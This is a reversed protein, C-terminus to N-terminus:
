AAPPWDTLPPLPRRKRFAWAPNRGNVWARMAYCYLHRKWAEPPGYTAALQANEAEVELSVMSRNNGHRRFAAIPQPERAFPALQLARLYLDLDACAMFSPDFGGLEEFFSREFYTCLDSIYGWGLSALAAVSLWEPPAAITGQPRLDGDVWQLTGTVWRRGSSRYRRVIAPLAGPLLVDDSGLYGVLDGSAFLMAKTIATELHDDPDRPFMTCGAAKAIEVTDDTSGGDAIVHEIEVGDTRQMQVSGIVEHMWVASNFTPTVVSVLM